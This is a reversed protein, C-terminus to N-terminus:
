LLKIEHRIHSCGQIPGAGLDATESHMLRNFLTEYHELRWAQAHWHQEIFEVLFYKCYVALVGVLSGRDAGCELASCAFLSRGPFQGTSV